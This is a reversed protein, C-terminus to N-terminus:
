VESDQTESTNEIEAIRVNPEMIAKREWYESKEVGRMAPNLAIATIMPM